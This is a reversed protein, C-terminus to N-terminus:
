AIELGVNICLWVFISWKDQVVMLLLLCSLHYLCLSIALPRVKSMKYDLLVQITPSRFAECVEQSTSEMKQFSKIFDISDKSGRLLPMTLAFRRFEVAQLNTPKEVILQKLRKSETSVDEIDRQM